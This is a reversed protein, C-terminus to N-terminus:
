SCRAYIPIAFVEQCFQEAQVLVIINWLSEKQQCIVVALDHLEELDM